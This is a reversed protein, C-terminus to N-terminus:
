FGNISSVLSSHHRQFCPFLSNWSPPQIPCQLQSCLMREVWEVRKGGLLETWNPNVGDWSWCLARVSLLRDLLGTGKSCPHAILAYCKGPYLSQACSRLHDLWLWAEEEGLPAIFFSLAGEKKGHSSPFLFFVTGPVEPFWSVVMSFILRLLFSVCSPLTTLIASSPVM